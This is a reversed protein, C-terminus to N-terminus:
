GTMMETRIATGCEPCVGSVNGTLNYSCSRCFGIEPHFRRRVLRVLRSVPRRLVLFAPLAAFTVSLKDLGAVRVYQILLPGSYHAPWQEVRGPGDTLTAVFHAPGMPLKGDFGSVYGTGDDRLAFQYNTNFVTFWLWRTLPLQTPYSGFVQMPDPGRRYPDSIRCWRSRQTGPWHHITTVNIQGHWAEIEWLQGAASSWVIRDNEPYSRVWLVVTAVCLVLSLVTLGNLMWRRFRRM